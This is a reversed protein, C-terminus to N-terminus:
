SGHSATKHSQSKSGIPDRSVWAMLTLIAQHSFGCVQHCFQQLRLCFSVTLSHNERFCMWVLFCWIASMFFTTPSWGRLHFSRQQLYNNAGGGM